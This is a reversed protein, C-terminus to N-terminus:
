LFPRLRDLFRLEGHVEEAGAAHAVVVFGRYDIGVVLGVVYFIEEEAVAAAQDGGAAALGGHGDFGEGEAGGVANGRQRLAAFDGLRWSSFVGVGGFRPKGCLRLSWLSPSLQFPFQTAGGDGTNAYSHCPFSKRSLSHRLTALLPSVSLRKQAETCRILEPRPIGGRTNQLFLASTISFLPHSHSFSRLSFDLTRLENFRHPKCASRRSSYALNRRPLVRLPVM